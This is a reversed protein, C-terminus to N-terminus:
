IVGSIPKLRKLCTQRARYFVSVLDNFIGTTNSRYANFNLKYTKQRNHVNVYYRINKNQKIYDFSIREYVNITILFNM